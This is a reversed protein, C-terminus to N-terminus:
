FTSKVFVVQKANEFFCFKSRKKWKKINEVGKGGQKNICFQMKNQLCFFLDQKRLNDFYGM